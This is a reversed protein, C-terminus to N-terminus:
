IAPRCRSRLHCSRPAAAADAFRTWGASAPRAAAATSDILYVTEGLARRLHRNVQNVMLGFLEAFVTPPRRRMPM